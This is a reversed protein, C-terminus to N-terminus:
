SELRFPPYEDTTMLAAYATVRLSWRNVGVIFDFIDRPYRGTFLIIFWAYITGFFVGVWLFFLIVFHPIALLWKILPMFQSLEREVDPYDLTLHVSQEEDTSPYTDDILLLYVGVRYSFATLERNFDFWWRPYKQRFIILLATPVVILGATAAPAMWTEDAGATAASALWGFVILIPIATFIRFFTTTKSLERDQYDITLDVPYPKPVYPQPPPPPGAGPPPPPPPTAGPPPISGEPGQPPTPPTENM